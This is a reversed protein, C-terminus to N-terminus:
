DTYSVMSLSGGGFPVVLVVHLDSKCYTSHREGLAVDTRTVPLRCSRMMGLIDSRVQYKFSPTCFSRLILMHTCYELLLTYVM